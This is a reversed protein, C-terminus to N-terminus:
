VAFIQIMVEKTITRTTSGCGSSNTNITAPIRGPINNDSSTAINAIQQKLKAELEQLKQTQLVAVELAQRQTAEHKKTQNLVENAREKQRMIAPDTKNMQIETSFHTKM